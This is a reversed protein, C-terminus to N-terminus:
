ARLSDLVRLYLARREFQHFGAADYMAIGPENAADVALVMGRAGDAYALWQAHRVLELGWGRGRVQPMLGMYMLEWQDTLPQEALLMCGVDTPQGQPSLAAVAILWRDPDFTGTARYGLLVEDITRLGDVAPCDLSGVYTKEIIAAFRDHTASSYSEFQLSTTPRKTPAVLSDARLYLLDTLHEFGQEVLTSAASQDGPGILAQILRANLDTAREVALELLKNATIQPEHSALKPGHIAAVRGTQPEAWAVGTLKDSRFSGVLGNWYGDGYAAALKEYSKLLSDIAVPEFNPFLQDFAMSRLDPQVIALTLPDVPATPM